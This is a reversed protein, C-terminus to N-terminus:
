SSELVLTSSAAALARPSGFGPATAPETAPVTSGVVPARVMVPDAEEGCAASATM